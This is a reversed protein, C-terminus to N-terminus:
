QQATDNTGHPGWALGNGGGALVRVGRKHMAKMSETAAALEEEYGMERAKAPPNGYAAGEYLLKFIVSLGPAVFIKDKNAELLDLAENDTFSAHYIVECGLRVAQKISDASRAHVAVRKGRLKAEEVAVKVEADTM